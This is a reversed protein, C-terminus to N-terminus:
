DFFFLHILRSTDLNDGFYEGAAHPCHANWIVLRNFVNAAVDIREWPSPDLHIDYTNPDSWMKYAEPHSSHRIRTPKHAILSTGANYPADPTLYIAGAWTQEDSHYVNPEGAITSQFRGNMGHEEWRTIPIGTIKQFSERLGPFLFQECSRKGIFGKGLGGQLYEQKLAFDRVAYPDDYFNDVVWLAPRPNSYSTFAPTDTIVPADYSIYIMFQGLYTDKWFERFDYLYQDNFIDQTVEKGNREYVHLDTHDQLYLNRFEIFREIADKHHTIHWEGACHRVNDRIFDYNEKTFISYEGGECDFKLFDIRTIGNEGIINKFTTTSYVDGDNHYIYVGSEDIVKSDEEADSIAKNIFTVPGHGVNKKLSNILTNSPEICYVHEPNKDLISYTFSGCNAGADFVIDGSKVPCHKEYTRWIINENTFLEIYEADTDGWDFEETEDSILFAKVRPLEFIKQPLLSNPYKKLIFNRYDSVSPSGEQPIYSTINNVIDEAKFTNAHLFSQSKTRRREIDGMWGFHWGLDSVYNGNETIFRLEYDSINCRLETPTAKKLHSKLCAFTSINWEVPNGNKYYVRCNASGELFVLPIKIIAEPNDRVVRAIYEINKPDIIEDCDTIFFVTNDDCDDVLNLLADRQIRERAWHSLYKKNGEVGRELENKIINKIDIQNHIDEGEPLEVQLVIVKDTNIDLVELDKMCTFEKPAGSHTRDGEMIIFYDVYDNLLNIRLELIEKENFYPFCDIINTKKMSKKTFVADIQFLENYEFLNDHNPWRHEEIPNFDDFGLSKMEEIIEEIKPSNLNYEKIPLELIVYSAKSITDRGGRIIDLESGQTDIKIIDFTQNVIDDLKKLTKKVIIPEDYLHTIERYYSCGTGKINDSQIYFDVEKEEDGLLEITYPYGTLKLDPECNENGEVMLIDIDNWLSRCLHSFEGVNAGIDLASKPNTSQQLRQLYSLITM